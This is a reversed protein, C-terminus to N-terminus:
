AVKKSKYILQSFRGQWDPCTCTPYGNGNVIVRYARSRGNSSSVDYHFLNDAQFGLKRCKLKLSDRVRRFMMQTQPWQMMVIFSEIDEKTATLTLHKRTFIKSGHKCPHMERIDIM